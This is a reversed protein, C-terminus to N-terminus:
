LVAVYAEPDREFTKKCSPACFAYTRGGYTTQWRATTPDVDMLCVPDLREMGPTDDTRM